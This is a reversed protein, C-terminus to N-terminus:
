LLKDLEQHYIKLVKASLDPKITLPRHVGLYKKRLRKNKRRAESLYKEEFDKM